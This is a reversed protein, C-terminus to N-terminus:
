TMCISVPYLTEIPAYWTCKRRLTNKPSYSPNRIKTISKVNTKKKLEMMKQFVAISHRTSQFYCFKEQLLSQSNFVCFKLFSLIKQTVGLMLSLLLLCPYLLSIKYVKILVSSIIDWSVNEQEFVIISVSFFPTFYTCLKCYICWILMM